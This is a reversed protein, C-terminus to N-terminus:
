WLLAGSYPKSPPSRSLPLFSPAARRTNFLLFLLTPLLDVDLCVLYVTDLVPHDTKLVTKISEAFPSIEEAVIGFPDTPCKDPFGADDGWPNMVSEKSTAGHEPVCPFAGMQGKKGFPEMLLGVAHANERDLLEGHGEDGAEMRPLLAGRGHRGNATLVRQQMRSAAAVGALRGQIGNGGLSPAFGCAPAAMIAMIAAVAGSCRASMGSVGFSGRLSIREQRNEGTLSRYLYLLHLIRARDREDGPNSVL